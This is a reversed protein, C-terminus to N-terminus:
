LEFFKFNLISTLIQAFLRLGVALEVHTARARDGETEGGYM